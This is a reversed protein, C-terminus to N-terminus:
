KGEKPALAEVRGLPSKPDNHAEEIAKALGRLQNAVMLPHNDITAFEIRRHQKKQDFWAFGLRQVRIPNEHLSFGPFRRTGEERLARNEAELAAAAQESDLLKTRLDAEVEVAHEREEVEADHEAICESRKVCVSDALDAPVEDILDGVAEEMDVVGYSEITPAGGEAASDWEEPYCYLKGYSAITILKSRLRVVLAALQEKGKLYIDRNLRAELDLSEYKAQLPGVAEAVRQAVIAALKEVIPRVARRWMTVSLKIRDPVLMVCDDAVDYLDKHSEYHEREGDRPTPAATM